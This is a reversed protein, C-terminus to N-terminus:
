PFVVKVEDVFIKEGTKHIFEVNEYIFYQPKGKVGKFKIDLSQPEVQYSFTKFEEPISPDTNFSPKETYTGKDTILTYQFDKRGLYVAYEFSTPIINFFYRSTGDLYELISFKGFDAYDTREFYNLDSEKIVKDFTFKWENSFEDRVIVFDEDKTTGSRQEEIIVHLVEDNVKNIKKIHYDEVLTGDAVRDLFTIEMDGLASPTYRTKYQLAAIMELTKLDQDKESQYYQQILTTIEKEEEPAIMVSTANNTTDETPASPASKNSKQNDSTEQKNEKTIDESKPSSCGAIGVSLIVFLILKRM